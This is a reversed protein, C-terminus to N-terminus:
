PGARAPSDNRDCLRRLWLHLEVERRLEPTVASVAGINVLFDLCARIENELPAPRSKKTPRPSQRPLDPM